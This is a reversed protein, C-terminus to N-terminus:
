WQLILGSSVNWGNGAPAPCFALDPDRYYVQYCRVSGPAITDGLAASRASVSPDGAGPVSAAGGSANKVYLRELAGAVCRVGDGFVVGAPNQQDGQLFVCTVSALMDTCDLRVTDPNVAGAASVSAGISFFDSAACGRGSAGNNGCPCPTAQTGDGPCFSTFLLNPAEHAGLDVLPASGVGTDLVAPNDIRRLKGDIDWLAGGPLQVNNGADCCPSLNALHLDGSALSVFQPDTSLNGPGAHGGQVCCWSVSGLGTINAASSMSGGPGQNFYVISNVLSATGQVGGSGAQLSRNGVITSAQITVQFGLGSGVYIAGGGELAPDLAENDFFVCSTLTVNGQVIELGGGEGAVNSVFSCRDFVLSPDSLSSCGGGVGLSENLEFITREFVVDNCVFTAVGGGASWAMNSRFTCNRVRLGVAQDAFLGGGRQAISARGGSVLFGDLVTSVLLGTCHVVHRSNDAFQQSADDGNVDGSLITPNLVRDRQELQTEGGAFGGYLEVQAPLEFSVAPAVTASPLYTGRAVWIQDGPLAAALAAQLGTPGRFADTWSSGDNAGTALAVNVYRTGASACSALLAFALLARARPLSHLM